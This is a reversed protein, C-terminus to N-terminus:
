KDQSTVISLYALFITVHLAMALVTSMYEAEAYPTSCVSKWCFCKVVDSGSLQAGWHASLIDPVSRQRRM